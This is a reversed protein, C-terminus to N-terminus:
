MFMVKILAFLLQMDVIELRMINYTFKSFWFSSESTNQFAIYKGSTLSESLELPNEYLAKWKVDDAFNIRFTPM